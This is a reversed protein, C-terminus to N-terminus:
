VFSANEVLCRRAFGIRIGVASSVAADSRRIKRSLFTFV